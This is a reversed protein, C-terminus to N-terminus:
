NKLQILIEKAIIKVAENNEFSAVREMTQNLKEWPRKRYSKLINIKLNAIQANNLRGALVKSEGPPLAAPPLLLIEQLFPLAEEEQLSILSTAAAYRIMKSPSHLFPRLIERAEEQGYMGLVLIIAQQLVEDETKLMQVLKERLAPDDSSDPRNGLAVVAHFKINSSAHDLAKQIIAFALPHNIKAATAVIFEQTRVDDTSEYIEKLDTVFQPMESDPIQSSNIVKSLEYAAVWKNGFTKSRMEQLLDQYNRESSLMKTVGYIILVAGLILGIPIAVTNFIDNQWLKKRKPSSQSNLGNQFFSNPAM